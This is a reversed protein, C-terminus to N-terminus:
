HLTKALESTIDSRGNEDLLKRRLEEARTDFELRDVAKWVSQAFRGDKRLCVIAQYELLEGVERFRDGLDSLWEGVAEDEAESVGIQLHLDVDVKLRDASISYGVQESLLSCYATLYHRALFRVHEFKQDRCTIDQLLAFYADALRARLTDDGRADQCALRAAESWFAEGVAQMWDGAPFGGVNSRPLTLHIWRM